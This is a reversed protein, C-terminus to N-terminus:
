SKAPDRLTGDNTRANPVPALTGPVAKKGTLERQEIASMTGDVIDQGYLACLTAIDFLVDSLAKSADNPKAMGVEALARYLDFFVAVRDLYQNGNQGILNQKVAIARARTSLDSM